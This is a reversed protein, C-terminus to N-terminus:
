RDLPFRSYLLVRGLQGHVCSRRLVARRRCRTRMLSRGKKRVCEPSLLLSPGPLEFEVMERGSRLDHEDEGAERLRPIYRGKNTDAEWEVKSRHTPWGSLPCDFNVPEGSVPCKAARRIRQAKERIALIPSTSLPHFLDDQAVLPKPRADKLAAPKRLSLGFISRTQGRTHVRSAGLSRLILRAPM